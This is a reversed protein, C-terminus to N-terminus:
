SGSCKAQHYKACMHVEVVELAMNLSLTKQEFTLTVHKKEAALFPLEPRDYTKSRINREKKREKIKTVLDRLETPRDGHFKAM